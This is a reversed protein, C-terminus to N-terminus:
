VIRPPVLAQLCGQRFVCAGAMNGQVERGGPSRRAPHHVMMCLPLASYPQAHHELIAATGRASDLGHGDRRIESANCPHKQM